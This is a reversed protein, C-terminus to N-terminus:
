SLWPCLVVETTNRMTNTGGNALAEAQVVDLAAKWNSPGVLLINPKVALPKGNDAKFAVMAQYAAAYNAADLTAKSMFAMQWLGYGVNVRADSGWVFENKEFVNDDTLSTKAVFNYDRRKQFIIPKIVKSTDLLYWAAGAGAIFNSVSVESGPLGVPHDTDFFFQGDYCLTANGAAIASFVLEDPHTAADQGMQEMLPTFIGYQDDEIKERPVSVTNEFTKNKITYGHVRLNQVVRDGLWERFKTTMGLWGYEEESTTSPVLMAVRQWMPQVTTLGRKFASNFATQLTKLNSASVVLGGFGLASISDGPPLLFTPGAMLAGVGPNLLGVAASIALVAVLGLALSPFLYRKM